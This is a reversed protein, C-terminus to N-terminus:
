KRKEGESSIKLLPKPNIMLKLIMWIRDYQKRQVRHIISGIFALYVTPLCYPFFKKIILIRGRILYYDALYSAEKRKGGTSQGGKHYVLGEPYFVVRYGKKKGRITWDPEEYYLFYQEEMLGVHNIFQRTVIFSSGDYNCLINKNKETEIYTIDNGLWKNFYIRKNGPDDVDPDAYPRSYSSCIGCNENKRIIEIMNRMVSAEVVTDNNLCWIYGCDKDQLALRIGMNMGGAFGLNKKLKLFHIKADTLIFPKGKDQYQCDFDVPKPLFPYVLSRIKPHVSCSAQIRGSAWDIMRNWSDNGSANDCVIIKYSKYDSKLVSELCEITDQWGNYNVMVVYCTKGEVQNLIKKM